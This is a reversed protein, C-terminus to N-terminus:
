PKDDKGLLLRTSGDEQERYKMAKFILNGNQIIQSAISNIVRSKKLQVELEEGVLDDDNVRESQEFLIDNLDQLKTRAM